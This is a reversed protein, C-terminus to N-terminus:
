LHLPHRESMIRVNLRREPAHSSTVSGLKRANRGVSAVPSGERQDVFPAPTTLAIAADRQSHGPPDPDSCPDRGHLDFTGCESGDRDVSLGILVVHYNAEGAFHCLPLLLQRLLIVARRVHKRLVFRLEDKLLSAFLENEARALHAIQM